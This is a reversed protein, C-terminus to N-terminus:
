IQLPLPGERVIQPEKANMDVIASPKGLPLGDDVMLDIQNKFREALRTVDEDYVEEEQILSTTLIPGGFQEILQQVFIHDSIRIGITKKKNQFYQSAEKSAGLIFTFPGPTNKHIIRFVQRDLQRLLPSAQSLSACLFTLNAQKPDVGKLRCLDHIAKKNNPDCGVAYISDTPYGVLLGDKMSQVVIGVKRISPNEAHIQLIRM